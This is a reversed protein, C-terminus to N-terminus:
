AASADRVNKDFLGVASALSLLNDVTRIGDHRVSERCVPRWNTAVIALARVVNSIATTCRFSWADISVIM